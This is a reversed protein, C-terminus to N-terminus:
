AKGASAHSTVGQFVTCGLWRGFFVMKGQVCLWIPTSRCGTLYQGGLGCVPFRVLEQNQTIQQVSFLCYINMYLCVFKLIFM